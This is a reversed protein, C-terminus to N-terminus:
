VLRRIFAWIKEALCLKGRVEKKKGNAGRLVLRFEDKIGAKDNIEAM